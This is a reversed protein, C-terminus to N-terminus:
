AECIDPCFFSLYTSASLCLRCVSVVQCLRLLQAELMVSILRSAKSIQFRFGFTLNPGSECAVYITSCLFGGSGTRFWRYGILGLPSVRAYSHGITPHTTYQYFIREEGLLHEQQFRSHNSHDAPSTRAANSMNRVSIASICVPSPPVRLM